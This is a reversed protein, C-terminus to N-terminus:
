VQSLLCPVVTLYGRQRISLLPNKPDTVNYAHWNLLIMQTQELHLVMDALFFSVNEGLPPLDPLNCAVQELESAPIDHEPHGPSDDVPVSFALEHLAKGVERYNPLEFDFPPQYPLDTFPFRSFNHWRCRFSVKGLTNPACYEIEDREDELTKEETVSQVVPVSIDENSLEWHRDNNMPTEFNKAHHNRPLRLNRRQSSPRELTGPTNANGNDVVPAANQKVVEPKDFPTQFVVTTLRNPLPTKDGLPQTM